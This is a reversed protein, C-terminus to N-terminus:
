GQESMIRESTSACRTLKLCAHLYVGSVGGHVWGWGQDLAFHQKIYEVEITFSSLVPLESHTAPYM